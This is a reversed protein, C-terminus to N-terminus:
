VQFTPKMTSGIKPYTMIVGSLAEPTRTIDNHIHTRTILEIVVVLV